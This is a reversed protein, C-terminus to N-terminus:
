RYKSIWQYVYLLHLFTKYAKRIEKFKLKRIEPLTKIWNDKKFRVIWIRKSKYKPNMEKYAFYYAAIQLIYEPYIKSSTKWDIMVKDKNIKGINDLTGAYNHKKSSVTLESHKSKYNYKIKFRIYQKLINNLINSYKKPWCKKGISDRKIAKHLKRGIIAAQRGIHEAKETGYKGYFYLMGPSALINTITTVSPYKKNDIIYIRKGM